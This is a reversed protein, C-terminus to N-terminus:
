LNGTLQGHVVHWYSPVKRPNHIANGFTHSFNMREPWASWPEIISGQFNGAGATTYHNHDYQSFTDQWFAFPFVVCLAKTFLM